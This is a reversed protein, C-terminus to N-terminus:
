PKPRPAIAVGGIGLTLDVVEVKTDKSRLGRIYTRPKPVSTSADKRTQTTQEKPLYVQTTNERRYNSNHTQTSHTQKKRINALKLADRRLDWENWRYSKDIHQAVPHLETQMGSDCKVVPGKPEEQMAVVKLGLMYVLEVQHEAQEVMGQLIKEPNRAFSIAAATSSFGYVFGEYKLLGISTDAPFCLNKEHLLVPCMQGCQVPISAYDHTHGPLLLELPSVDAPRLTATPTTPRPPQASDAPNNGRSLEIAAATDQDFQLCMDDRMAEIRKSAKEPKRDGHKMCCPLIGDLLSQLSLLFTREFLLGRWCASVEAFLPYVRDTSVATKAQVAAQLAAIGKNYRHLLGRMNHAVQMVDGLIIAMCSSAQWSNRQLATLLSGDDGAGAEASLLQHTYDFALTVMRRFHRALAGCLETMGQVIQQPCDVISSGGKGCSKNFLRIGTVIQSLEELQATKEVATLSLFSALQVAPLVSELAATTEKVATIDTENGLRSRILVSTVIKRYLGDLDERSKPDAGVIVHELTGLKEAQMEQQQERLEDRSIHNLEMHAQLRLTDMLPTDEKVKAVALSVIADVDEPTLEADSDFKNSPDLIAAKTVNAVLSDPVRLGETRCRGRVERVISRIAGVAQHASM